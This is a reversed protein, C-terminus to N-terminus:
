RGLQLPFLTQRVHEFFSYRHEFFAWLAMAGWTSILRKLSLVVSMVQKVAVELLQKDFNTPSYPSLGCPCVPSSYWGVISSQMDWIDVSQVFWPNDFCRGLLISWVIMGVLSNRLCKAGVYINNSIIRDFYLLVKRNCSYWYFTNQEYIAYSLTGEM